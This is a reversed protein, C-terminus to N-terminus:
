LLNKEDAMMMSTKRAYVGRCKRIIIQKPDENTNLKCVDNTWIKIVNARDIFMNRLDIKNFKVMIKAGNKFVKDIDNFSLPFRLKESIKQFIQRQEGESTIFKNPIGNISLYQALKRNGTTKTKM